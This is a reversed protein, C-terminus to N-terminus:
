METNKHSFSELTRFICTPMLLEITPSAVLKYKYGIIYLHQNDSTLNNIQWDVVQNVRNIKIWTCLNSFFDELQETKMNNLEDLHYSRLEYEFMKECLSLRMM